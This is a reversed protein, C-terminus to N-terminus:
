LLSSHKPVRSPAMTKSPIGTEGLAISLCSCGSNEWSGRGSNNSGRVMFFTGAGERSILSSRLRGVLVVARQPAVLALRAQLLTRGWRAIETTPLSLSIHGQAIEIINQHNLAWCM